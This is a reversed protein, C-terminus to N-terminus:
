FDEFLYQLDESLSQASERSDPYKEFCSDDQENRLFPIWPPTIDKQYVCEWDVGKFWKHKSISKGKDQVGLRYNLEPNLLKRILDKAKNDFFRPFEIIGAIIKKYIGIPENDYFPPYGSLMEFILIGLAWWDVSKGYGIKTGKIIEPALYEPTGCLTFTRDNELKKAFGFDTIKINGEKDILLNEPKLDRYVIDNQQLYQLSILIQCSYFLCVDNAFRGEKRLRTFLEGGQVYEFLMYIYKEDQFTSTMDVIFPFKISSLINKESNIHEVQVLRVIETKKLMKLAYFQKNTDGKRKVQRVRGFTGTVKKKFFIFFYLNYKKKKNKLFIFRLNWINRFRFNIFQKLQIRNEKM